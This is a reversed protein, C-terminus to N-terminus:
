GKGGCAAHIARCIQAPTAQLCAWIWGPGLTSICLFPDAGSIVTCLARIYLDRKEEPVLAQLEAADAKGERTNLLPKWDNHGYKGDSDLYFFGPGHFPKRHQQWGRWEALWRVLAEDTIPEPM